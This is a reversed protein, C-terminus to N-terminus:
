INWLSVMTMWFRDFYQWFEDWKCPTPSGDMRRVLFEKVAPIGVPFILVPAIATLLDIGGERLVINTTNFESQIASIFGAEFDCTITTPEIAQGISAKIRYLASWFLLD